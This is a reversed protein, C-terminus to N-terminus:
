EDEIDDPMDDGKPIGASQEAMKDASILVTKIGAAFGLGLGVLLGWPTSGVLRDFGYGLGLGVMVSVVLETSM